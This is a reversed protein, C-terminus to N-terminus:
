PLFGRRSKKVKRSSGTRPDHFRGMKLALLVADKFRRNQGEQRDRSCRQSSVPDLDGLIVERGIETDKIVDAFDSKGNM